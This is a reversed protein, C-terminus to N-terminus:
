AWCSPWCPRRTSVICTSSTTSWAWGSGSSRRASSPPQAATSRKAFKRRLTEDLSGELLPLDNEGVVLLTTAADARESVTGGQTRVLQQVERKSMGAFKGVLAVRQGALLEGATCESTISM